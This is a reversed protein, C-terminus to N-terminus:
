RFIGRVIVVFEVEFDAVVMLWRVAVPRWPKRWMLLGALPHGLFAAVGVLVFAAVCSSLVVGASLLPVPVWEFV